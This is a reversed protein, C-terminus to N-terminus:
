PLAIHTVRLVSEGDIQERTGLVSISQGEFQTLTGGDRAVLVAIVKGTRDELHWLTTEEARPRRQGARRLTGYPTWQKADNDTGRVMVDRIPAAMGPEREVSMSTQRFKSQLESIRLDLTAGKLEFSAPKESSVNASIKQISVVASGELVLRDELLSIALQDCSGSMMDGTIQVKGVAKLTGKGTQLDLSQCVVRFEHKQNVTATVVTQGNIMEAHITWPSDKVKALDDSIKAPMIQAPPPQVAQFNDYSNLKPKPNESPPPLNPPAQGAASPLPALAPMPKIPQTQAVPPVIPAASTPPAVPDRAAPPLAPLPDKALMPPPATVPPEPASQAMSVGVPPSAVTMVPNSTNPLPLPPPMMPQQAMPVPMPPVGKKAELSQKITDFLDTDLKPEAKKPPDQANTRAFFHGGVAVSLVSVITVGILLKKRM